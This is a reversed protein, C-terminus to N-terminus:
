GSRVAVGAGFHWNIGRQTIAAPARDKGLCMLVDPWTGQNERPTEWHSWQCSIHPKPGNQDASDPENLPTHPAARHSLSPPSEPGVRATRRHLKPQSGGAGDGGGREASGARSCATGGERAVVSGGPWRGQPRTLAPGRPSHPPPEPAAPSPATGGEGQVMARHRHAACPWSGGLLQLASGAGEAGGAWAGGPSKQCQPGQQM